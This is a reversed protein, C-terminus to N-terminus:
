CISHEYIALQSLLHRLTRLLMFFFGCKSEFKRKEVKKMQNEGLNGRVLGYNLTLLFFPFYHIRNIGCLACNGSPEM